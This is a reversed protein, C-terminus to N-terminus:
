RVNERVHGLAYTGFGLLDVSRRAIGILAPDM